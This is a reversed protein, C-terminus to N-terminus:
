TRRARAHATFRAPQDTRFSSTWASCGLAFPAARTASTRASTICRLIESRGTEQSMRGVRPYLFTSYTNMFTDERGGLMQAFCPKIPREEAHFDDLRQRVRVFSTNAGVDCAPAAHANM